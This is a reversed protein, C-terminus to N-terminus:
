AAPFAHCDQWSVAAGFARVLAPVVATAKPHVDHFLLIGRRWLLMLSIMRDTIMAPDMKPNWDQSDLNWLVVRSRKAALIKAADATRRGYPPRWLV